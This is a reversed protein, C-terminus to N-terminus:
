IKEWNVMMCLKFNLLFNFLCVHGEVLLMRLMVVFVHRLM